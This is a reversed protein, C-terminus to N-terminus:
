TGPKSLVNKFPIKKLLKYLSFSTHVVYLIIHVRGNSGRGQSSSWIGRSSSGPGTGQAPAPGGEMTASFGPTPCAAGPPPGGVGPAPWVAGLAPVGTGPAPARAGHAPGRGAPASFVSGRSSSGRYENLSALHIYAVNWLYAGSRWAGLTFM